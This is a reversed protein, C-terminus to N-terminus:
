KEELDYWKGCVPCKYGTKVFKGKAGHREYVAKLAPHYSKGKPTKAVCTCRMGDQICSIM